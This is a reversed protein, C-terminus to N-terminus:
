SDDPGNVLPEGVVASLAKMLSLEISAATTGEATTQIGTILELRSLGLVEGLKQPPAHTGEEYQSISPQARSIAEALVKQSLGRGRRQKRILRGVRRRRRLDNSKPDSKRRM